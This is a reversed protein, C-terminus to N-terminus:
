RALDRVVHGVGTVVRALREFDITDVTDRPTHYDASRFLATDTVMLGPYGSQGFSWHDSWEVGPTRSPMAAGESPFRAHRRFSGVAQRVLDRSGVNGIFAVFDGTSPYFIGMPFPYRQSDERDSYHGLTELSLMAVVNEGRDRCRRAYQVSGMDATMFWPPEENVFAVLRVTRAFRTGALERALALLVATGSANDNAGRTGRASDYHAGVVVIETPREGGLLEVELNHVPRRGVLFTQRGVRHGAEMLAREVFGAARDLAEPNALNREGITVALTTVDRRLSDRLDAQQADLPPSPGHWRQGPMRVMLAWPTIVLTVVASVGVGLRLWDGRSLRPIRLDEDDVVLNSM